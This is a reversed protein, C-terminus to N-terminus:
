RPPGAALVRGLGQHLPPPRRPPREPRRLLRRPIGHVQGLRQRRCRGQRIRRRGAAEPGRAAERERGAAVAVVGDVAAALVVVIALVAGVLAKNRRSFVRIQYWASARRAVIQEGDLYRHVDRAFQGANDYRRDREKTLAKLVITDLDSDIPCRAAGPTAAASARPRVRASEATARGAKRPRPPATESSTASSRLWPGRRDPLATGTLAEFLIVGLSYVDTRTDMEDPNGRTQEPSM